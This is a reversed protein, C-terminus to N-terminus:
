SQQKLKQIANRVLAYDTHLDAAALLADADGGCAIAAQVLRLLLYERWIPRSPPTIAVVDQLLRQLQPLFVPDPMDCIGHALCLIRDYNAITNSDLRASSYISTPNDWTDGTLTHELVSAIVETAERCQEQCLLVVLLHIKTPLPWVCKWM